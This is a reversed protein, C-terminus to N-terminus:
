FVSSWLTTDRTLATIWPKQRKAAMLLDLDM